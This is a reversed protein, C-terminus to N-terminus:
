RPSPSTTCLPGVSWLAPCPAEPGDWREAGGSVTTCVTSARAHFLTSGLISPGQDDVSVNREWLFMAGEGSNNDLIFTASSSLEGQPPQDGVRERAESFVYCSVIPASTGERDPEFGFRRFAASFSAGWFAPSGNGMRDRLCSQVKGSISCGRHVCLM